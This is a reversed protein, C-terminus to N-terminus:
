RSKELSENREKEFLKGMASEVTYACNTHLHLTEDLQSNYYSVDVKVFCEGAKIEKRCGDCITKIM